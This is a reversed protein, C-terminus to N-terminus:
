KVTLGKMSREVHAKFLAPAWMDKITTKFSSDFVCPAEFHLSRTLPDRLLLWFLPIYETQVAHSSLYHGVSSM